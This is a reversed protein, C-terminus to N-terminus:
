RSLSKDNGYVDWGKTQKRAFLEIRKGHPYLTDIITRFEEPKESHATRPVSVVSDFLKKVDPQCSGRTCVLLFEHRVSNYHGMNHKVKDWVFSSKYRFGWADIVQFAEELIPSTAWLFLVANEEAKIPVDCISRLSMLPYHDGQETFYDPMTNGYEWPPDAYIVRYKGEPADPAQLQWKYERVAERMQKRNWENKVAEDLLRDQEKPELGAVEYHHSFSLKDRRRSLDVNAAVFKYNRWTNGQEENVAQAYMEGWAHEGYNLWDGIWWQVSGEIHQLQKGIGEWDEFSLNKPLTLSTKGLGSDANILKHADHARQINTM